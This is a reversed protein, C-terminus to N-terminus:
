TTPFLTSSMSVKSVKTEEAIGEGSDEGSSRDEEKMDPHHIHDYRRNAVQM